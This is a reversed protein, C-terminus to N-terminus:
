NKRRRKYRNGLGANFQRQFQKNDKLWRTLQRTYVGRVGIPVRMYPNDLFRLLNLCMSRLFTCTPHPQLENKIFSRMRSCMRDVGYGHILANAYYERLHVRCFHAFMDYDMEVDFKVEARLLEADNVHLAGFFADLAAVNDKHCLLARVIDVLYDESDLFPKWDYTTWIEQQGQRVCELFYEVSDINNYPHWLMDMFKSDCRYRATLQWGDFSAMNRVIEYISSMDGKEIFPEMVLDHRPYYKMPWLYRLFVPRFRAYCKALHYVISWGDLKGYTSWYWRVARLEVINQSLAYLRPHALSLNVIDQVSALTDFLYGVLDRHPFMLEM